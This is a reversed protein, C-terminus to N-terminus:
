QLILSCGKAAAGSGSESTEPPPPADVLSNKPPVGGAPVSLQVTDMLLTEGGQQCQVKTAKGNGATILDAGFGARPKEGDDDGYPQIASAGTFAPNLEEYFVEYAVGPIIGRLIYSGDATDQPYSNGTIASVSVILPDLTSRAVVQAGQFGLNDSGILTGALECFKTKYEARPYLNSIAVVDDWHLTSQDPTAIIPYMTPLAQSLQPDKLVDGFLDANVGSHDLNFLHGLEHIVTARFMQIKSDNPDSKNAGKLFRGNLVTFAAKITLTAADLNSGGLFTMAAVKDPDGGLAETFTGADDMVIVTKQQNLLKQVSALNNVETTVVGGQKAFVQATPVKVLGPLTLGAKAWVDFSDQVVKMVDTESLPGLGAKESYWIVTGGAWTYPNGSKHDDIYWPSAAFSPLTWCCLLAIVLLIPLRPKM